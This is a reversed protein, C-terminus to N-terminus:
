KGVSRQRRLLLLSALATLAIVGPEPIAQHSVQVYVWKPAGGKTVIEVPV